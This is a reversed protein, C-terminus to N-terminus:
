KHRPFNSICCVTEILGNVNIEAVVTRDRRRFVPQLTRPAGRQAALNRPIVQISAVFHNSAEKVGVTFDGGHACLHSDEASCPIRVLPRVIQRLFNVGRLACIRTPTLSAATFDARDM